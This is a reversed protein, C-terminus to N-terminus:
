EELGSRFSFSSFFKVSIGAYDFFFENKLTFYFPVAQGAVLRNTDLEQYIHFCFDVCLLYLIAIVPLVTLLTFFGYSVPGGFFSIGVLSLIWLVLWIIRNRRM